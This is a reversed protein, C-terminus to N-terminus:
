VRVGMVLIDDQQAMDKKWDQLFSALAKEQEPMPKGQLSLLLEKFKAISIKKGEEGGFQDTYGDTFMYFTDGEQLQVIYTSYDEECSTFTGISKKAPLLEQIERKGKPVIWLPRNAGSYSIKMGNLSPTVACLAIDMGDQAGEDDAQHLSAKLGVNVQKLIEGTGLNSKVVDNLKEECLMSMFAGPIGHGTCDAVAIYTKEQHRDFFYFDGSVIDKPMYLVFSQPFSKKINDMAPLVSRQIREAYNISETIQTNKEEIVRKAKRVRMNSSYAYGAFGIVLVLIGSIYYITTEKKRVEEKHLAERKEDGAKEIAEKKAFELNMEERMARQTNQQNFITDRIADYAKYHLLAKMGDGKKAYIESLEKEVSQIVDLAGIERAITVAKNDFELAKSMNGQKRYIKGESAFIGCVGAKDGLNDFINLAQGYYDLAQPYDNRNNYVDGMYMLASGIGDREKIAKFLQLAKSIHALANPHDGQAEYLNGVSLLSTAIYDTDKIEVFIHLAKHLYDVADTSDGEQAYVTGIYKLAIAQGRRDNLQEYLSLAKLLYDLSHSYDGQYNCAVGLNSYADAIGKKYNLRESLELQEQILSDAQPYSGIITLAQALSDM